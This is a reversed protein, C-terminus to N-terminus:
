LDDVAQLLPNTQGFAHIFVLTQAFLGHLAPEVAQCQKGFSQLPKARIRHADRTGVGQAGGAIGLDREIPGSGQQLMRDVDDRPLFFCAQDILADRVGLM